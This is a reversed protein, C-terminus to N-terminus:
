WALNTVIQRVPSFRLTGWRSFTFLAALFGAFELLSCSFWFCASAFPIRLFSKTSSFSTSYLSRMVGKVRVILAMELPGEVGYELHEAVDFM